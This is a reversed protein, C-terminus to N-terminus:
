RDECVVARLEALADPGLGVEVVPEVALAGGNVLDSADIRPIRDVDITFTDKDTDCFVVKGGAQTITEATSIWTHATTIVEDGPRLGLARM